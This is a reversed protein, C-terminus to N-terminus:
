DEDDFDSEDIWHAQIAELIKEGSHKPDDDFDDLELVWQRLDVFNIRQPDIDPYKDALAIALERSDTWKM